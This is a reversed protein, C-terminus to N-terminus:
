YRTNERRLIERRCSVGKPTHEKGEKKLKDRLEYLRALRAKKRALRAQAHDRRPEFPEYAEIPNKSVLHM